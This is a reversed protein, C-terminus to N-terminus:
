AHHPIASFLASAYPDKGIPPRQPETVVLSPHAIVSRPWPEETANLTQRPMGRAEAECRITADTSSPAERCILEAQTAALRHPPSLELELTKLKSIKWFKCLDNYNLRITWDQHAPM